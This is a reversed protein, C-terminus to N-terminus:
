AWATFMFFGGEEQQTFHPFFITQDALLPIKIYWKQWIM